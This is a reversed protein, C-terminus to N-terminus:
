NNCQNLIEWYTVNYMWLGQSLWVERLSFKWTKPQVIAFIVACISVNIVLNNLFGFFRSIKGYVLLIFSYMYVLSKGTIFIENFFMIFLMTPLSNESIFQMIKFSVTFTESIELRNELWGCHRAKSQYVHMINAKVYGHYCSQSHWLADSGGVAWLHINHSNTKLVAHLDCLVM